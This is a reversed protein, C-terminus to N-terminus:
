FFFNGIVFLLYARVSKSIEEESSGEQVVKFNNLLWAFSVAESKMEDSQPVLGLNNHCLTEYGEACDLFIQYGGPKLGTLVMADEVTIMYNKGGLNFTHKEANFRSYLFRLLSINVNFSQLKRVWGFGTKEIMPVRPDNDHIPWKANINGKYNSKLQMPIPRVHEMSNHPIQM